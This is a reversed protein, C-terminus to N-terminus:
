DFDHPSPECAGCRKVSNPRRDLVQDRIHFTWHSLEVAGPIPLFGSYQTTLLPNRGYALVWPQGGSLLTVQGFGSSVKLELM